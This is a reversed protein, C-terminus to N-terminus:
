INEKRLDIVRKAKGMSRPIEGPAVLEIKAKLRLTEFLEDEIRRQFNELDKIRDSFM